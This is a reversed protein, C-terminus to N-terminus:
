DRGLLWAVLAIVLVAGIPVDMIRSLPLDIWTM